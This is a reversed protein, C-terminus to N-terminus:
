RVLVKIDRRYHAPPKASFIKRYGIVLLHELLNTEFKSEPSDCHAEQLLIVNPQNISIYRKLSLLDREFISVGFHFWLPVQKPPDMNYDAYLFGYESTNLFTRKKDILSRITKLDELAERSMPIGKYAGEQIINNTILRQSINRGLLMLTLFNQHLILCFSFIIMCLISSKEKILWTIDKLFIKLLIIVTLTTAENLSQDTTHSTLSVLFSIVNISILIFVLKRITPSNNTFWLYIGFLAISLVSARTIYRLNEINTIGELRSSHPYQGLNFWYFFNGDQNFINM